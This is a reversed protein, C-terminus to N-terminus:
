KQCFCVYNCSNDEAIKDKAEVELSGIIFLSVLTLSLSPRRVGGGGRLGCM